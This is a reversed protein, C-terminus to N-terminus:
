VSISQKKAIETEAVELTHLLTRNNVLSLTKKPFSTDIFVKISCILNGYGKSINSVFISFLRSILNEGGKQDKM